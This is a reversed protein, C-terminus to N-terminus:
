FIFNLFRYNKSIFVKDYYIFIIKWKIIINLLFHEFGRQYEVDFGDHQLEEFVLKSLTSKGSGDSGSFTLIM